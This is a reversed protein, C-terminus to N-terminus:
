TTAIALISTGFPLRRRREVIPTELRLLERFMSNVLRPLHLESGIASRRPAAFRRSLPALAAELRRSIWVAPYIVSMFYTVYEVRFEAAALVRRLTGATYRRQHGSEEDFRSWLSPGAPVTLVLRGGPELSERVAGLAARDDEIHELVDFMGILDFRRRFPMREIRGEVLRADTRSRAHLLGAHFADMGILMAGPFNERLVRLTNGTGCGIELVRSPGAGGSTPMRLAAGLINNRGVFWFHTDEVPRLKAFDDPNYHAAGDSM